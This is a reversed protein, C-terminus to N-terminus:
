STPRSLPSAFSSGSPIRQLSWVGLMVGVAGWYLAGSVVNYVVPRLVNGVLVCLATASLIFEVASRSRRVAQTAVYLLAIKLAMLILWGLAGLEAFVRLIKNDGGIWGEWTAGGVFTPAVQHNSGVGYGFLGAEELGEIPASLRVMIRRYAEGMGGQARQALAEWARLLISNDLGISAIVGGVLALGLFLGGTGKGRMVFLLVVLEILIIVVPSRSGTMPLIIATGGLVIAGLATISKRKWKLGGLVMSAGLVANFRLYPAFSGIYPFTGTIRPFQGVRAVSAEPNVYRNIWATRPQSFQYISLLVIPVSVLLAYGWLFRTIARESVRVMLAPLLVVVPLFALHAKLGLASVLLSPQRINFAQAVVVFLYVALLFPVWTAYLPRPLELPNRKAAYWVYGGWLVVDKVLFLLTEQSPLVWKRLAGDVIVLLFFLGLMYAWGPLREGTSRDSQLEVVTM